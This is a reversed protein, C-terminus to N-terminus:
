YPSPGSCRPPRCGASAPVVFRSDEIPINLQVEDVQYTFRLERRRPKDITWRFPIKVGDDANRYDTYDFQFLPVRGFLSNGYYVLRVLLGSEKDFYLNLVALAGHIDEKHGSVVYAERGEVKEMREVRLESFVQKVRGAFLLPDELKAEDLDETRMNRALSGSAVENPTGTWGVDGNYLTFWDGQALHMVALRKAPAKAL